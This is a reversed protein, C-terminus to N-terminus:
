SRSSARHDAVNLTPVSRKAAPVERRIGALHDVPGTTVPFTM